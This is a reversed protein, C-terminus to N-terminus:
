DTGWSWKTGVTHGFTTFGILAIDLLLPLHQLHQKLWINLMFAATLGYINKTGAIRFKMEELIANNWSKMLVISM